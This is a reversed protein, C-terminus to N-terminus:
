KEALARTDCPGHNRSDDHDGDARRAPSPPQRLSSDQQQDVRVAAAARDIPVLKDFEQGGVVDVHNQRLTVAPRIAGPEDLVYGGPDVRDHNASSVTGDM